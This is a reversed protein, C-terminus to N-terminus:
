VNAARYTLRGTSVTPLRVPIPCPHTIVTAFLTDIPSFQRIACPTQNNSEGPCGDSGEARAAPLAGDSASTFGITILSLTQSPPRTITNGPTVTPSPLMTAAPATTVDSTGGYETTAPLGARRM